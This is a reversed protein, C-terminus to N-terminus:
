YFIRISPQFQFFNFSLYVLNVSIKRKEKKKKKSSFSQVQIYVQQCIESLVQQVQQFTGSSKYSKVLINIVEETSTM